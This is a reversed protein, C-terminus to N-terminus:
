KAGITLQTNGGMQRHLSIGEAERRAAASTSIATNRAPKLSDGYHEDFVQQVRDQTVLANRGAAETRPPENKQQALLFHIRHVLANGVRRAYQSSNMDPYQKALRRGAELCREKVWPYMLEVTTIASERGTLQITFGPHHRVWASWYVVKCGYLQALASYLHKHWTPDKDTRQLGDLHVKVPDDDGDLMAADIQHEELLQQAKAMFAEAEAEHETSSAKALLAKIKAAMKQQETM